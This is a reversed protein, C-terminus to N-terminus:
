IDTFTLLDFMTGVRSKGTKKKPTAEVKPEETEATETVAEPVVAEVPAVPTAPASDLLARLRSLEEELRVRERELRECNKQILELKECAHEYQEDKEELTDELEELAKKLAIKDACFDLACLIAAENRNCKKSKLAIDRMRRDIIGVIYDVSEQSEETLVNIQMDAVSITYKQKM